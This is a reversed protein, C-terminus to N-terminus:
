GHLVHVFQLMVASMKQVPVVRLRQRRERGTINGRHIAAVQRSAQNREFLTTQRQCICGQQIVLLPM